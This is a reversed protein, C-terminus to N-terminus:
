FGRRCMSVGGQCSPFETSSQLSSQAATVSGKKSATSSENCLSVQGCFDEGAVSAPAHCLFYILGSSLKTVLRASRPPPVFSM